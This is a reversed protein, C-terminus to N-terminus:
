GKVGGDLGRGGAPSSRAQAKLIVGHGVRPGSLTFVGGPYGICGMGVESGVRGFGCFEVRTAVIKAVDGSVLFM